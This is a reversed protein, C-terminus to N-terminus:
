ASIIRGEFRLLLRLLRAPVSCKAAIDGRRQVDARSDFPQGVEASGRGLGATMRLLDRIKDALCHRGVLGKSVDCVLQDRVRRVYGLSAARERSRPAKGGPFGVLRVLNLADFSDDLIFPREETPPHSTQMAPQLLQGLSSTRSCLRLQSSRRTMQKISTPDYVILQVHGLTKERPLTAWAVM